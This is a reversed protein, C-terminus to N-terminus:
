ALRVMMRTPRGRRPGPSCRSSRAPTSSAPRTWCAARPRTTPSTAPSSWASPGPRGPGPSRRRVAETALGRGWFPRGIWYGIEPPRRGPKPSLGARRDARTARPRDRVGGRARPRAGGHSRHVRRRRRRTPFPMCATMRAVDFDNALAALPEADSGPARAAGAPRPRSPTATSGPEGGKLRDREAAPELRMRPSGPAPSGATNQGSREQKLARDPFNQRFPRNEAPAMAQGTCRVYTRDDRQTIFKM